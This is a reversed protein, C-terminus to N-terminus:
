KQLMEVADGLSDERPYENLGEVEGGDYLGRNTADRSQWRVVAERELENCDHRDFCIDEVAPGHAGCEHCFVCAKVFLGDDGLLESDPFCGGGNLARVVIPVPPGECFPCPTLKM